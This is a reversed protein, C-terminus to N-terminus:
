PQSRSLTCGNRPVLVIGDGGMLDRLGVINWHERGVSPDAMLVRGDGPFALVVVAHSVGIKWGWDRAYREDREAVEGTLAVNVIAPLNGGAQLDALAVRRATPRFPTGKTKIRLARFLGHFTTGQATTLCLDAMEGESAEIGYHRLLTAGAAASCTAPQTQICVEGQWQDSCVPTEALLPRVLSWFALGALALALVGRRWWPIAARLLVAGIPLALLFGLNGCVPLLRTPMMVALVVADSLTFAFLLMLLTLGVGVMGLRWGRLRATLRHVALALALGLGLMALAAIWLDFRSNL